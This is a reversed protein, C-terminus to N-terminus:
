QQREVAGIDCRAQTNIPDVGAIDVPRTEGRQDFSASCSTDGADIAQSSALPLHTKTVGGNDALPGLNATANQLDGTNTFGCTMASELNFGDSNFTGTGACDAGMAQDAVITSQLEVVSNVGASIGGGSTTASNNTVTVLQLFSAASIQQGLGLQALGGGKNANNGSITSNRMLLLSATNLVGGGSGTKGDNNSITTRFMFAATGLLSFGGGGLAATNYDVTSNFTLIFSPFSSTGISNVGGGFNGSSNNHVTSNLLLLTVFATDDTILKIGGGGASATNGYVKSNILWLRGQSFIGGGDEAQSDAIECNVFIAREQNFIAGGEKASGNTMKIGCYTANIDEDVVAPIRFISATQNGRIIAKDPGRGFFFLTKDIVLNSAHYIGSALVISDDANAQYIAYPITRCPSTFDSCNGMDSGTSQNVFRPTGQFRGVFFQDDDCDCITGVNDEDADDQNSNADYPCNDCADGVGDGDFDAQDANADFPCNDKCGVLGDDDTDDDPVGCGCLGPQAKAPDAPCQDHNAGNGFRAIIPSAVPRRARGLEPSADIVVPAGLPPLNPQIGLPPDSPPHSGEEDVKKDIASAGPEAPKEEFQKPTPKCAILFILAMIYYFNKAVQMVAGGNKEMKM